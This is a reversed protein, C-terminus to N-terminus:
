YWFDRLKELPFHNGRGPKTVSFVSSGKIIIKYNSHGRDDNIIQKRFFTRLNLIAIFLILFITKFSNNLDPISGKKIYM